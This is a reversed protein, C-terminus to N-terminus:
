QKLAFLRELDAIALCKGEDTPLQLARFLAIVLHKIIPINASSLAADLQDLTLVGSQEM